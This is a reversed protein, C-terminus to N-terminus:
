SKLFLIDDFAFNTKQIKELYKVQFTELKLFSSSVHYFHTNTKM